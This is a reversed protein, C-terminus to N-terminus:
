KQTIRVGRFCFFIEIAIISINKQKKGGIFVCIIDM